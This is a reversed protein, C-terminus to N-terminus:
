VKDLVIRSMGTGDPEIGKVLYDVGDITFQDDHAINPVDIDRVGLEPGSSEIGVFSDAAVAFEDDFVAWITKVPNAGITVQVEQGDLSKIYELRDTDSEFNAPM